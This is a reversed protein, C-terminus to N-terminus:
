NKIFKRLDNINWVGISKGHIKGLKYMTPSVKRIIKFPGDYDKKLKKAIGLDKNSLSKDKKWVLNGVQFETKQSHRNYYIAQRDNAM